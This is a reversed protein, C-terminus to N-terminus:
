KLGLVSRPGDVRKALVSRVERLMDDRDTKQIIREVGGNLRIRDADTLDKATVVVVPIDRWEAKRRMEELFEFGDMEPMMLDLIIVDPRAESLRTLADRGDIAETVTWGQQELAARIQRRGLDDDDVILLPRGTSGCLGRLVDMLKQRDVPKVLYETAGLAYGRNKEDVITMLVVPLDVLDPDGKIAALVTWGDLDPMMIDLTVAAPHLERAMRLGEKGGDAKAVSFGERELFRGVVDRVTVDDDIILILPANSPGTRVSPAASAQQLAPLVAGAAPLRITFSSGRGLESKVTIDGAMLQCFRRSIALGLGTGGYKRTTSSDAQSFEQFLKGVQEPTMGIGTDSVAMTIWDRGAERHRQANITVTGGETFKNANSLLNLLAQRVRTQDAQMVGLDAKCDVVLRNNNKAALTEITKVADNVLPAIAFEEIHIEMKGAEVKSLDLIDNILGLLHRAARLVRDLPEIEDERKLDSADERLMETVGIIANLPTRLEHSMNALFQSKHKSAEALERGKEEIERFLRANQIALVSQNGFTQLLDVAAQPFAGPEKRRVVLAGVIRDPGLLPVVLLARYGAALIIDNLASTPAERLDAIQIPERRRAAEGVNFDSIGIHRDSIAAIMAESMGYTARLRFEEREEDFVYIAGADTASLEVAKTVITRLVTEVELTSNVAQGVEGLARLEQVSRGLEDTRARLESLLRANEIAIVAQDAFTRLIARQKDSIPGPVPRVVSLAGIAVDGRLMPMITTAQYGSRLFNSTGVALEPPGNRADPIDVVRRDLIAVGNMHERVLPIPFIGRLAEARAADPAGVAAAKVQNQERLAVLITAGPFLRVGSQVIADFVPQTDSLSKSIVRLIEATATQQELSERLENLLRTNEIAIVAQAAFNELLAIQKDTFPRVETRYIFFAGVLVNDKLMPICVTSRAGALRAGPGRGPEAADDATHSVQKTRMVRHLHGGPLPEFRGRQRLFEAYESSLGVQAAPIFASGDFRFLSGSSAECIRTANELMAHFVPELDGPSSSIVKLVESTATQQELSETLDDTRQRLENLLRTNEIAIVAQSAFSKVLEIQKETFPRVDRRYIAIAGMLSGEKLMPVALYTRAGTSEVLHVMQRIRELYAQDTTLDAVHVVANTRALRALPSGSIDSLSLVPDRRLNALGGAPSKMLVARFADNEFLFLNGFEAECIGMAKDLMANFVPDLDGPSSSIVSLVESTATQQQLSERLERTRQQEAEFLRVNEIAIVAQDAFSKLLNIHGASFSGRENRTIVIVGIPVDAHLMPVGLISHWDGAHAIEHLYNPDDLVDGVQVVARTLIARGSVQDPQPPRPHTRHLAELVELTYNHHAVLHILKGDFRFVAGMRAGCLRVASAVITDFVPQLDIRSSSIVRLIDSTATQQELSETLDHTRQRLENLLRANEVAIVAQDAFTIVLEIQKESFREVRTRMLVLVGIPRGERLLPVGLTTQISEFGPVNTLKFEPDAKTDEVQVVRGEDLVRGVISGRDGEAPVPHAEMYRDQEASYGYSAAHHFFEGRVLRFSGKDAHCLRAASEILAGLVVELDFTSRSIVKLVDATATQQELSERLENLLRTNEIAIVAQAAFNSVLEIQKETFPKVEQRYITIIGLIAGEKRLPVTLATRAGGLDVLARRQPDGTRYAEESALDINHVLPEGHLLRYPGTGPGPIITTKALFAAFPKPVGRLAVARYRNEELTWIGGFDAECLSMAKELMADFVPQLAGPSSNILQLVEATAKRQELAEDRERTLRAIETEQTIDTSRRGPVGEPRIAGKPRAAKRRAGKAAKGGAKSRKKM